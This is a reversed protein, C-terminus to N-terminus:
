EKVQLLELPKGCVLMWSGIGCGALTGAFCWLITEWQTNWTASSLWPAISKMLVMGVFFGLIIIMLQNWVLVFICQRRTTGLVRMIAMEKKRSLLLLISIAVSIIAAGVLVVPYLTEMLRNGKELPELAMTLESDDVVCVLKTMAQAEIGSLIDEVKGQFQDLQRNWSRDIQFDVMSYFINIRGNERLRELECSRMICGTGMPQTIKGIVQYRYQREVRRYQYEFNVWDGLNLGLKDLVEESLVIWTNAYPNKSELYSEDFGPLYEVQVGSKELSSGSWASLGRISVIADATNIYAEMGKPAERNEKVQNLYVSAVSGIELYLEHIQGINLLDEVVGVPVVGDGPVYFSGNNKQIAGTVQISEYLYDMQRNNYQISYSMVAPAVLFAIMLVFVMGTRVPTRWLYRLLYRWMMGFSKNRRASVIRIASATDTRKQVQDTSSSKTTKVRVQETAGAERKARQEGQLLELTTRHLMWRILVLLLIGWLMIISVVTFVLYWCSIELEAGRGLLVTLGSLIKEAEQRVHYWATLTGIAIGLIGMGFFPLFVNAGTVWRSVGLARLIALEKRWKLVSMVALLAMVAAMIVGYIVAGILATQLMPRASEKFKSWGNDDIELAIGMEKMSQEVKDLLHQIRDADSLVFYYNAPYIPYGQDWESIWETPVISPPVYIDTSPYDKYYNYIGVIECTRTVIELEKWNTRYEQLSRASYHGPDVRYLELTIEEGLGLGRREALEQHIVCVARNEDERTLWRGETLFYSDKTAPALMMDKVLNVTAGRINIRQLEIDEEILRRLEKSVDSFDAHCFMLVPDQPRLFFNYHFAKTGDGLGSKRPKVKWLYSGGYEANEYISWLEKDKEDAYLRIVLNDGETMYEPLASHVKDVKVLFTYARDYVEPEGNQYSAPPDMRCYSKSILTGTLYCQNNGSYEMVLSNIYPTYVNEMAGFVTYHRSSYLVEENEELLRVGESVDSFLGSESVLTGVPRYYSAAQEVQQKMMRYEMLHSIFGFSLLILFLVSLLMRFPQRAASQLGVKLNM